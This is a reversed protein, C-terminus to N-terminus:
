SLKYFNLLEPYNSNRSQESYFSIISFLPSPYPTCSWHLSHFGVAKHVPCKLPIAPFQRLVPHFFTRGGFVVVVLGFVAFSFFGGVGGSLLKLIEDSLDGYKM